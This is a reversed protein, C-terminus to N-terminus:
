SDDPLGVHRRFETRQQDTIDTWGKMERYLGGPDNTMRTSVVEAAAALTGVRRDIIRHILPSFLKLLGHMLINDIRVYLHPENRLIPGGGTEQEETYRLTIVMAGTFHVLYTRSRFEGEVLYVRRGSAAAVGRLHGHIAGRDNVDYVHSAQESIDYRELPPYLHRAMTVALPLHDLLFEEHERRGVFRVPDVARFITHRELVQRVAPVDIEFDLLRIPEHAEKEIEGGFVPWALMLMALFLLVTSPVGRIM